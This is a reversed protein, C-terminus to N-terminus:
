KNKTALYLFPTDCLAVIIEIISGITAISVITGLDLIGIFAFFAFFYNEACNSIITSVNNRLWLKSPVKNKIKEFIWIGLINSLFYMSLSAISTRLNLGFLTKMSEQALDTTDPVFLMSIQTSIVFGIASLMGLLIAKRSHEAGYKETMIDSALFISAFMINGLSSTFGLLNVTKCVLINAIVTAVSIWVYVGEKKFFKEMLTLGSFCLVISVIGLLINM